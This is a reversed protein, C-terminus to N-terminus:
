FAYYLFDEIFDEFDGYGIMSLLDDIDKVDLEDFIGSLESVGLIKTIYNEAVEAIFEIGEDDFDDI